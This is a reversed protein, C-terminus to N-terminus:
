LGACIWLICESEWIFEITYVIIAITSLINVENISYKNYVRLLYRIKPTRYTSIFLKKRM